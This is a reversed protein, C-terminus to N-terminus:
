NLKLHTIVKNVWGTFEHHTMSGKATNCNKCCAVTNWIGYGHSNDVRDIGNYKVDGSPTAKSMSWVDGCYYCSQQIIEIFEVRSLGFDLSRRKANRKYYHYVSGLAGDTYDHDEYFADRASNIRGSAKELNLCGCSQTHGRMLRARAILKTVGCDCECESMVLKAHNRGADEKIVTLRSFRQGDIGHTKYSGM